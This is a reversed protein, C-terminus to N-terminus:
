NVIRDHFSRRVLAAEVDLVVLSLAYPIEAELEALAQETARGGM